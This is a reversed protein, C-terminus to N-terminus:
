HSICRTSIKGSFISLFRSGEKSFVCFFAFVVFSKISYNMYVASFAPWEDKNYVLMAAASPYVFYDVTVGQNKEEQM